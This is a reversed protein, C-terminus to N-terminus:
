RPTYEAEFWLRLSLSLSLASGVAIIGAGVAPRSQGGSAYGVNTSNNGLGGTRLWTQTTTNMDLDGSHYTDLDGKFTFRITGPVSDGVSIEGGNPTGNYVTDNARLYPYAAFKGESTLNATKENFMANMSPLKFDTWGQM